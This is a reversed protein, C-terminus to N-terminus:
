PTFTYVFGEHLGPQRVNLNNNASLVQTAESFEEFHKNWRLSQVQALHPCAAQYSSPSRALPSHLPTKIYVNFKMWKM